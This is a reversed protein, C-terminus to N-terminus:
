KGLEERLRLHIRYVRTRVAGPRIGLIPSIEEARLGLVDHLALLERDAPAMEALLQRLIVAETFDQPGAPLM